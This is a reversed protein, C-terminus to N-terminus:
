GLKLWLMGLVIAVIIAAAVQWPAGGRPEEGPSLGPGRTAGPVHQV